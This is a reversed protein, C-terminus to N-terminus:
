FELFSKRKQTYRLYIYHEMAIECVFTGKKESVVTYKVKM